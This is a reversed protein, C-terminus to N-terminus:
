IMNERTPSHAEGSVRRLANLDADEQRSSRRFFSVPTRPLSIKYEAINQSRQNIRIVEQNIMSNWRYYLLIFSAAFSIAQAVLFGEVDFNLNFSFYYGLGLTIPGLTLARVVTSCKVDELGQLANNTIKELYNFTLNVCIIKFMNKCHTVVEENAPDNISVYLSTLLEPAFIFFMSFAGVITINILMSSHIIRRARLPDGSGNLQSVIKSSSNSIASLFIQCFVSYQSVIGFAALSDVSLKGIMAAAIFALGIKYLTQVCIPIGVDIIHKLSEKMNECTFKFILFRDFNGIINFAFFINYAMFLIPNVIILAIAISQIGMDMSYLLFAGLSRELILSIIELLFPLKFNSITVSFNRSAVSLIIFPIGWMAIKFYDNVIPIINENQHIDTLIQAIFSLPLISLSTTILTLFYSARLRQGAIEFRESSNLKGVIPTVASVHDSIGAAFQEVTNILVGAAIVDKGLRSILYNRSLDSSISIATLFLFPAIEKITQTIIRCNNEYIAPPNILPRIELAIPDVNERIIPTVVEKKEDFESIPSEESKVEQYQYM